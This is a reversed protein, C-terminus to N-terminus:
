DLLGPLPEISVRRAPRDITRVVDAVVPILYERQGDHVEWVDHLGNTMTGTITGLNTGDLTVVTFGLVEHHYFEDDALAPLDAERVLVRAGRLAEAATRDSVGALGVLISGRGHAQAHTVEIERWSGARELLVRRGPAISPAPPQYPRVRALGRLAHAGVIEGVAVASPDPSAACGPLASRDDM